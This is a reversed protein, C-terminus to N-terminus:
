TPVLCMGTINIRDYPINVARLRLEPFTISKCTDRRDIQECPPPVM